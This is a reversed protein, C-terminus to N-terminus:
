EDQTTVKARVKQAIFYNPFGLSENEKSIGEKVLRSFDGASAGTKIGTRKKTPILRHKAAEGKAEM